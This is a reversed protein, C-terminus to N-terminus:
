RKSGLLDSQRWSEREGYFVDQGSTFREDYRKAGRPQLRQDAGLLPRMERDFELKAACPASRVARSWSARVGRSIAWSWPFGRSTSHIVFRTPRFSRYFPDISYDVLGETKPARPSARRRGEGFPVRGALETTRANSQTTRRYNKQCRPTKRAGSIRHSARTKRRQRPFIPTPRM